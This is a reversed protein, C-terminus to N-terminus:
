HVTCTSMRVHVHVHVYMYVYSFAFHVFVLFELSWSIVGLLVFAYVCVKVRRCLNDDDVYTCKSFVCVYVYVYVYMHMAYVYM